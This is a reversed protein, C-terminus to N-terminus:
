KSVKRGHQRNTHRHTWWKFKWVMHGINMSSPVTNDEIM